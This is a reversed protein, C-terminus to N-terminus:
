LGVGVLRLCPSSHPLAFFSGLASVATLMSVAEEHIASSLKCHYYASTPLSLSIEDDEESLKTMEKRYSLGYDFSLYFDIDLLVENILPHFVSTTVTLERSLSRQEEFSRM